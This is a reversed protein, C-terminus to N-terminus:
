SGVAILIGEIVAAIILLPVVIMLFVNIGELFRRKFEKKRNSSFFAFGLKIGLGLSIFIAPLEFIGHPFLRLLEIAGVEAVVFNSVYGLVIGNVIANLVPVIGFFVGLLLGFLASQFNNQLIFFTLEIGNLGETQKLIDMLLVNIFSFKEANFFGILASAAFVAFALYVFGLSEKLYVRANRWQHRFDLVDRKKKVAKKRVM